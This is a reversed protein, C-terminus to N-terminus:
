ITDYSVIFTGAAAIIILPPALVALLTPLAGSTGLTSFMNMAFYLAFSVAIGISFKAGFNFNRRQRTQSFAAGLVVMAVLTLPMLLLTWFHTQHGRPNVGIVRMEKIFGPLKWFSVQDPKLYKDLVIKPTLQTPASWVKINKQRSTEDFVQADYAQLLGASLTIRKAEVREVLQFNPSQRFLTADMFVIGDKDTDTNMNEARLTLVDHDTDGRLWIARDILALKSPDLNGSSLKVTYPNLVLSSLIGIIAAAILMPRMIQYPSLGASSVIVLESHRTLNYYAMLTGMFIALPMFLPVYDMLAFASLKLADLMNESGPLKEVFTVAFIIGCIILVVM